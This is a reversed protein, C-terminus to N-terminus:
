KGICFNKFINGLIDDVSIEGTIEGLTNIAERIDFSLFEGSIQTNLDARVLSLSEHARSLAQYHRVNTVIVDNESYDSWGSLDILVQKLEDLNQKHKASIYVTKYDSEFTPLQASQQVDIKNFVVVLKKNKELIGAIQLMLSIGPAEPETLLIIIEAEDMKKYTRDIGLNEIVDTTERLGATDIFRFKIGQITITDEISDRTTGAIESVIAKEENLLANLLTSKGVNPQGVIVVPLGNKIVNGMKFSNELKSIITLMEDVLDKLQTRDAFEVDEESFDLELEVLSVFNLLKERLGKLENSFGGRMQNMAVRHSADNTSSILDAVAEAQSLDMKGNIFARFTFEGAQAMTAGSKILLQLIRQQIYPSGHCSIEVINESTYSHPAKFISVVVEDVIQNNENIRGFHTTNNKQDVLKKNSTTSVFVKDTIEIAEKGSLRIVAIAGTGAATSIAAITDTSFM